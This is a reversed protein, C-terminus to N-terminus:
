KENQVINNGEFSLLRVAIVASFYEFQIFPDDERKIQDSFKELLSALFNKVSQDAEVLYDSLELENKKM